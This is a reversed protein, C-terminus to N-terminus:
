RDHGPAGLAHLPLEDLWGLVAEEYRIGFMVVAAVHPDLGSAGALAARYMSLREEHEARHTALFGALTESDLHRGFWLTVLLPFRIQEHAPPERIWSAFATRGARTITFPRRDRPGPEGAKVLGRQELAKLERYAHSSTVNWFRQLGGEVERLLAWGTKPGDHLFGLLSAQTANLGM